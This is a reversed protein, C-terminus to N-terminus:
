PHLGPGHEVGLLAGALVLLLLGAALVALVVVWRPTRPPGDPQPADGPTM